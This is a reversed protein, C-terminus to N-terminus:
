LIGQVPQKCLFLPVNFLFSTNAQKDRIHGPRIWASSERDCMTIRQHEKHESFRMPSSLREKFSTIVKKGCKEINPEKLTPRSNKMKQVM